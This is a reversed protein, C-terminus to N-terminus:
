AMMENNQVAAQDTLKTLKMPGIEAESEAGKVWGPGIGGPAPLFHNALAAIAQTTGPLLGHFRVALKAPLSLIVEADGHAAAGLIQRAARQASISMVPLSDSVAFWAYEERYRGKFIAQRPSGTRMLGPVVTTVYINDKKLEAHLGESFGVLAFKSACYPLLHPVAIKGGISTINVIRGEGRGRMVPLVAMTTFLPGFFHISMAELYDQVTMTEVPGVEIVGANNILLDISGFHGLVGRILEDVQNQKSIDCQVALVDVGRGRLEDRARYLEEEDRACIALRAGQDALQRALVLGLGRSAGTILAVKGAFDYRNLRRWTARGALAAGLGAGLWLMSRQRDNM